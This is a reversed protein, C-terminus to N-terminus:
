ELKLFGRRLMEYIIESNTRPRFSQTILIGDKNRGFIQIKLKDRVSQMQRKVTYHSKKKFDKAVKAILPERIYKYNPSLRTKTVKRDTLQSAQKIYAEILTREAPSLLGIGANTFRLDKLKKYQRIMEPKQAVPKATAEGVPPFGGSHLLWDLQISSMLNRETM